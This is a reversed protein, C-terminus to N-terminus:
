LAAMAPPFSALRPRYVGGKHSEIVAGREELEVLLGAAHARTIKFRRALGVPGLRRRATVAALAEYLSVAPGDLRLPRRTFPEFLRGHRAMARSDVVEVVAGPARVWQVGEGARPATM